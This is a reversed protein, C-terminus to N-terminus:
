IMTEEVHKKIRQAKKLTSQYQKTVKETLEAQMVSDTIGVVNIMSSNKSSKLAAIAIDLGIIIDMVLLGALDLQCLEEYLDVVEALRVMMEYPPNSANALGEDLKQRRYEKEEETNQPLRYLPLVPEFVKSDLDVLEIFEKQLQAAQQIGKQILEEKAAFRKKGAQLEFIFQALSASIAAVISAASGGTYKGDKSALEHLWSAVTKDKM